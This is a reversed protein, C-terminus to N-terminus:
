MAGIILGAVAYSVLHYGITIFYLGSKRGEFLFNMGIKASISIGVLLGICLGTCINQEDTLTMLLALIYAGVLATLATLIYTAPGGGSMEEMNKGMQKVWAKGFLVPSYWLFGIIMTAVTAALVALYNVEAFDVM